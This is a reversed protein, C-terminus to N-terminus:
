KVGPKEKYREFAIKEENIYMRQRSM